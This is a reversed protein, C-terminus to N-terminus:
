AGILEDITTFLDTSAIHRAAVDAHYKKIVRRLQDTSSELHQIYSAIADHLM